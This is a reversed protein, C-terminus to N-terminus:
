ADHKEKQTFHYGEIVLGLPNLLEEEKSVTFDAPLQYRIKVVWEQRQDGSATHDVTEFEIEHLGKDLSQDYLIRIDRTGGQLGELVQYYIHKHIEFIKPSSMSRVKKFRYKESVNDITHRDIVYHRLFSRVLLERTNTDLSASYVKPTVQSDQAFEVYRVQVEKLPLLMIMAVVLSFIIALTGALMLQLYRLKSLAIEYSMIQPAKRNGFLKLAAETM